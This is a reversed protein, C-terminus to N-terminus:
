TWTDKIDNTHSLKGKVSVRIDLESLVTSFPLGISHYMVPEKLELRSGLGLFDAGLEKSLALVANIKQWVAEELQGTLHDSYNDDNLEGSGDIELVTASVDAAIQLYRLSGDSAWVPALSCGGDNIELTVQDGNMDEVQLDTVGSKDTLIGVGLALETDIFARLQNDVMVAFGALAATYSESEGSSSPAASSEPSPSPSQTEESGQGTEAPPSSAASEEGTPSASDPAPSEEGKEDGGESKAPDTGHGEAGSGRSGGTANQSSPSLELACILASGHRLSSSIIQAATFIRSEGRSDLSEQLGHLIDTISSSGDGSLKVCDAAAGNRIIYLPIDIRLVPSQCVYALHDEIGKEATERGILISDINSFFLEQEFSSSRAQDIAATVSAGSGELYVPANGAESQAAACLSLHVGGPLWDLGMTQIVLLDEVERYNAYIGCGPLFMLSFATLLATIRKM